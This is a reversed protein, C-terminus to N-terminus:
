ATAAAVVHGRKIVARPTRFTSLQKGADADLLLLDAIDGAHLRGNGARILEAGVMTASHIVEQPNMGLLTEMLELEYAYADQYNFPTGADSGAAIKVGNRYARGINEAMREAVEGAKRTVFDPQTGEHAHDLICTPATLTPVLYAGNAKFLEIAEDDLMHGHEISTVGARLANKIGETGIAHACVPMGHKRAEGIAAHMEQESLEAQGPIAGKTLVGGTAILKICNAGNRQQERVAKVADDVGKIERGVFWGHGGPICLVNGAARITPGATRGAEVADRLEISIAHSCGVDRVATVGARLSKEANEVAWLMRQAPTSATFSGMTDAQGSMELHVHANILGPTVCAAQLDYEGGADAVGAICGDAITIDVNSRPNELTGDYFIGARVIM